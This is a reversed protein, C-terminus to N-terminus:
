CTHLPCPHSSGSRRRPLEGGIRHVRRCNRARRRAAGLDRRDGRHAGAANPGRSRDRHADSPRARIRRPPPRDGDVRHCNRHGGWRDDRRYPARRPRRSGCARRHHPRCRGRRRPGRLAARQHARRTIRRALGRANDGLRATDHRSRHDVFQARRQVESSRRAAGADGAREVGPPELLGRARGRGHTRDPPGDRSRDDRPRDRLARASRAHRRLSLRPIGHHRRGEPCRGRHTGACESGDVDGPEDRLRASPGARRSRDGGRGDGSPRRARTAGVRDADSSSTEAPDDFRILLQQASLNGEDSRDENAGAIAVVAVSIGLGLTIAALAAAARAQYRALDRLALRPAFPLRRAPVALARVAAPSVFVVGVVVALLGVVLVLPRVHNSTPRAAAIAGVGCVVLAFAFVLSRHVPRARSPRGSLAAMVSLRSVARAPWWAAATAMVVAILLTAAMLTWPLAFRDIRHNVGSELWPASAIWGIVGLIAGGIAAVTGVIAGNMIMVLRLQRSSAGIASLLGLQRQRRQAVVVFGAAAVLGVLAMVLTIAAVITATVAGSIDSGGDIRMHQVDAPFQEPDVAFGDDVLLRVSETPTNTDPAVLAFEDDLETPNEVTGVVTRTVGGLEVREGIHASLLSADRDTLAVEDPTEPYRGDLLALMPQGFPGQPDQARLEIPEAVGPVDGATIWIAEVTGVQERATEITARVAAPDSGDIQIIAGATGFEADTDADANVAMASGAVAAAVGVTILILVLLQQRWERRFLRWTWRLVARRAPAGSARHSNM